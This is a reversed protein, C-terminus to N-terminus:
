LLLNKLNFGSGPGLFKKLIKPKLFAGCWDQIGVHLQKRHTTSYATALHNTRQVRYWADWGALLPFVGLWKMSYLSRYAGVQYAAQNTHLGWKGEKQPTAIPIKQFSVYAIKLNDPHTTSALGEYKKWLKHFNSEQVGWPFHRGASFFSTPPSICFYIRHEGMFFTQM